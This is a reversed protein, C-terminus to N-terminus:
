NKCYAVQFGFVEADRALKLQAQTQADPAGWVAQYAYFIRESWQKVGNAQAEGEMANMLNEAESQDEADTDHAPTSFDVAINCVSKLADDAQPNGRVAAIEANRADAVAQVGLGENVISKVKTKAMAAGLTDLEDVHQGFIKAISAVAGKAVPGANGHCGTFVLSLSVAVALAITVKHSNFASM